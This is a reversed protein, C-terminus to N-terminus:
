LFQVSVVIVVPNVLTMVAMRLYGPNGDETWMVWHMPLAIIALAM